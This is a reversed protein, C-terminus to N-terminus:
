RSSVCLDSLLMRSKQIPYLLQAFDASDSFSETARRNGAGARGCSITSIHLLVDFSLVGIVGVATHIRLM